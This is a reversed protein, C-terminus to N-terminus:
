IPADNHSQFRGLWTLLHFASLSGMRSGRVPWTGAAAHRRQSRLNVYHSRCAILKFCFSNVEGPQAESGPSSAPHTVGRFCPSHPSVSSISLCLHLHPSLSLSPALRFSFALFDKWFHWKLCLYCLCWVSWVAIPARWRFPLIPGTDLCAPPWRKVFLGFQGM